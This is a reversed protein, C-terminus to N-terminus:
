QTRAASDVSVRFLKLVQVEESSPDFRSMETELDQHWRGLLDIAVQHKGTPKPLSEMAIVLLLFRVRVQQETIETDSAVPDYKDQASALVAVIAAAAALYWDANNEGLVSRTEKSSIDGPLYACALGLNNAARFPM